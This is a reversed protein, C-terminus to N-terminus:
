LLGGGEALRPEDPAAGIRAPPRRMLTPTFSYAPWPGTPVVAVGRARSAVPAIRALFSSVDDRRVLFAVGGVVNAAPRSASTRWDPVGACEVLRHGLQRLGSADPGGEGGLRLLKVSMEIHGRLRELTAHVAPRRAELWDDLLGAVCTGYAFPLLADAELASVVVDHHAGLRRPGAPPVSAFCSALVVLDSRRHPTVPAGDVGFTPPRWNPTAGHVIAYLYHEERM